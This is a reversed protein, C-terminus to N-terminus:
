NSENSVRTHAPFKEPTKSVVSKIASQVKEDLTAGELKAMAAKDMAFKEIGGVLLPLEKGINQCYQGMDLLTALVPGELEADDGAEKARTEALKAVEDVLQLTLGMFERQQGVASEVEAPTTGPLAKAVTTIIKEYSAVYGGKLAKCHAMASRWTEAPAAKAVPAANSPTALAAAVSSSAFALGAAVALLSARSKTFALM